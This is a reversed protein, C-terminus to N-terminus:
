HRAPSVTAPAATKPATTKPAVLPVKLNQPIVLDRSGRDILTMMLLLGLFFLSSVFIIANLPKDWRLHMFFLAVLSAKVSAIVLAIVGNMSGFNFGAAFVTIVTLVMLASLVTLYIRPGGHTHTTSHDSM